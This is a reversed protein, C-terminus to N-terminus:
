KKNFLETAKVDVLTLLRFKEENTLKTSKSIQSEILQLAGTSLCSSVAQTAKEFAVSAVPSPTEKVPIKPYTGSVDVPKAVPPTQPAVKVPAPESRRENIMFYEKWMKNMHPAIFDLAMEPTMAKVTIEPQVNAFNGTPIVMKISYSVMEVEPKKVAKVKKEKLESPLGFGKDKRARATAEIQRVRERTVGIEKGVEELTNHNDRMELVKVEKLTLTEVKANKM